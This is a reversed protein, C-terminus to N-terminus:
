LTAIDVHAFRGDLREYLQGGDPWSALYLHSPYLVHSYKKAVSLLPNRPDFGLLLYAVGLGAARNYLDGLLGAFVALDDGAVCVLSVYASRLKEGPRPLVPRRLWLAGLNYLPAVAKRLGSYSHLVTQKYSSQDWVAGVAVIEGNRRLVRINEANLGLSSLESLSDETWVPFFQQRSGYKRLFNAIEGLGDQSASSLSFDGQLIRKPRGVSIALTHLEAIRQFSPFSKRSKRVLIEAAERNGDVISALYAPVPDQEHLQRLMAFGRSVLWRGRFQMGIRLQGLYGLRRPAGNVFVHRTSRCAVGAIQGSHRERAVLVQFTDGTVRCGLSFDPEREYALSIHGPVTERRCLGRIAPDDAPTALEVQLAM